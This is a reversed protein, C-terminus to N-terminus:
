IYLFMSMEEGGTFIRSDRYTKGFSNNTGIESTLNRQSLNVGLSSIIFVLSDIEM